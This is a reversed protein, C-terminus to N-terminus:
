RLRAPGPTRPRGRGRRVRRGAGRRVRQRLTVAGVHCYWMEGEVHCASLRARWTARAPSRTRLALGSCLSPRSVRVPLSLSGHAHPSRALVARPILSRGYPTLSDAPSAQPGSTQTSQFPGSAHRSAAV